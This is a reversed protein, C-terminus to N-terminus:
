PRYPLPSYHTDIWRRTLVGNDYYWPGWHGPHEYWYVVPTPPLPAPDYVVGEVQYAVPPAYPSAPVVYPYTPWTYVQPQAHYFHFPWDVVLTNGRQGTVYLQAQAVNALLACVLVVLLIAALKRM